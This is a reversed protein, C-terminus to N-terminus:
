EGGQVFEPNIKPCYTINPNTSFFVGESAENKYCYVKVKELEPQKIEWLREIDSLFTSGEVGDGFEVIAIRKGIYKITNDQYGDRCIVDGVKLDKIDM